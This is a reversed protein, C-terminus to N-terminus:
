FITTEQIDSQEMSNTLTTPLSMRIDFCNQSMSKLNISVFVLSLLLLKNCNM